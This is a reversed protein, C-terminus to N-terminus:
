NIAWTCTILHSSDDSIICTCAYQDIQIMCKPCYPSRAVSLIFWWGSIIALVTDHRDIVDSIPTCQCYHGFNIWSEHIHITIDVHIIWTGVGMNRSTIVFNTHKFMFHPIHFNLQRSDKCIFIHYWISVKGMAMLDTYVALRGSLGASIISKWKKLTNGFAYVWLNKM